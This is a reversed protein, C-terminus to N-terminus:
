RESATSPRALLVRILAAVLLMGIAGVGIVLLVAFLWPLSM